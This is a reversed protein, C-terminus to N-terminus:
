GALADWVDHAYQEWTRRPRARAATALRRHAEDDTLVTRLGAAISSDDRPDVLLAGGDAAIEAMSGFNSTVAPTGCSLAEAVPLGFGENLSPFVMCRALRYAAWLTSDSMTTVTEVPRGRAQAVALERTFREDNWSRGGVLVLNFRLGERWLLEAAHLLALHNKRPEHTGVCLVMPMGPVLLRARADDLEDPTSGPVEGPLPEVSIEPGGAGVSSLMTRWGRYEAAAASSITSVRDMHRVAALNTAFAESVGMATTEGTTMPVCDFGIVGTRCRAFQALAAIRENRPRELSLEPLLYTSEWPVVVVDREGAPGPAGDGTLARACEPPTLLRLHRYGSDWGVLRLEHGAAWRRVTERAVRQIGTALGARATHDVDVLVAGRLVRVEPRHRFGGLWSTVLPATRSGFAAGPGDLRIARVTRRVEPATALRAELVSLALWVASADAPALLREFRPVLEGRDGPAPEGSLTSVISAIRDLLATREAPSVARLRASLSHPMGVQAATGTSM